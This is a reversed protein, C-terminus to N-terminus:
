WKIVKNFLAEKYTNQERLNRIGNILAHHLGYEILFKDMGPDCEITPTSPDIHPMSEVMIKGGLENKIFEKLGYKFLIEQDGENLDMHITCSGDDNEVISDMIM